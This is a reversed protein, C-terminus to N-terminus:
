KDEKILYLIKTTAPAITYPKTIDIKNGTSVDVASQYGDPIELTYSNERYTDKQTSNMGILYNGYHLRYFYALGARRDITNPMEQWAKIGPPTPAQEYLRQGYPLDVKVFLGSPPAQYEIDFDVLRDMNEQTYRLRGTKGIAKGNTADTCFFSGYMRVDNHRFVFVGVQEDSWVYDGQGPLMPLRHASPKMNKVKRFYEVDKIQYIPNWHAGRGPVADLLFPRGHEIELQALRISVPDELIAAERIGSYEIRFPYSPARWSMFGISLLARYGDEDNTPIRFQSRAHVAKSVMEKTLPDGSEEVLTILSNTLEGYGDVYGLERTLGKDTITRFPFGAADAQVGFEAGHLPNIGMGEYVYWLIQAEKLARDKDLLQLAGNIRYLDRCIYFVQNTYHRRESRRWEFADYFFDSYAMRRPIKATTPDGDHDILSDLLGLEQLETHVQSYAKGLEGFPTWGRYFMKGADGEESLRKVQVDLADTIKYLISEDHYYGSWETHYILGLAAAMRVIHRHGPMYMSRNLDAAMTYEIDSKARELLREEIGPFDAPKPRVDGWVFADPIIDEVPPEFFPNTHIYVNYIAFCKGRNGELRLRLVSVGSTIEEPIWYTRYIWGGPLPSQSTNLQWLNALEIDADDAYLSVAGWSNDDGWVRITIYNKQKSSLNANFSIWASEEESASIIRRGLAGPATEDESLIDANSTKVEYYKESEKNGLDLSTLIGSDISQGFSSVIITTILLISLKIKM